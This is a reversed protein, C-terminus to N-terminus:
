ESENTDTTVAEDISFYGDEQRKKMMSGFTEQDQTFLSPNIRRQKMMEVEHAPM